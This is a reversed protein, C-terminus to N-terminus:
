PSHAVEIAPQTGQKIRVLRVILKLYHGIESGREGIGIKQLADPFSFPLM